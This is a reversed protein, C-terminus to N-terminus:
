GVAMATLAMHSCVRDVQAQESSTAISRWHRLRAQWYDLWPEHSARTFNWKSPMTLSYRGACADFGEDTTVNLGCLYKQIYRRRTPLSLTPTSNSRVACCVLDSVVQTKYWSAYTGWEQGGIAWSRLLSALFQSFARNTLGESSEAARRLLPYTGTLDYGPQWQLGGSGSGAPLRAWFVRVNLLRGSAGDYEVLRFSPNSRYIPSLAGALLVPGAQAPARPLVRFEDAHVHGFLQAAIVNGLVPDQVVDLYAQVYQPKWLPTFSFTEQGPPIHGALWVRRGDQVAKQLRSRLWAFQGFPDKPEPSKPLHHVSYIVTDITLIRLGGVETEFFGGSSFETGDPQTMVGERRWVTAMDALWPNSQGGTTGNLEYDRPSDSNGQSAMVFGGPGLWPFGGKLGRAVGEIVSLVDARPDPMAQTHHRVHDGTMLAFEAGQGFRAAAAVASEWLARPPDCGMAGGPPTGSKPLGGSPLACVASGNGYYPDAHVDTLWVFFRRDVAREQGLQGQPLAASSGKSAKMGLLELSHPTCSATGQCHEDKALREQLEEFDPKLPRASALPAAAAALMLALRAVLLHARAM